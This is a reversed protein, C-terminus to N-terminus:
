AMAPAGEAVRALLVAEPTGGLQDYGLRLLWEAQALGQESGIRFTSWDEAGAWPMRRALGRAALAAAIAPSTVLHVEGDLHVHGLEEGDRYFDAGDVQGNRSLHWHTSAQVGPWSAVTEALGQFPEALVPPPAPRGKASRSMRM